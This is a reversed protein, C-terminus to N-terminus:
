PCEGPRPVGGLWNNESAVLACKLVAESDDYAYVTECAHPPADIRSCRYSQPNNGDFNLKKPHFVVKTRGEEIKFTINLLQQIRIIDIKKVLLGIGERGMADIALKTIQLVIKEKELTEVVAHLERQSFSFANLHLNGADDLKPILLM